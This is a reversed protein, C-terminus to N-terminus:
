SEEWLCDVVHRIARAREQSDQWFEDGGANPTFGALMYRAISSAQVASRTRIRRQMLSDVTSENAWFVWRGDEGVDMAVACHELAESDIVGKVYDDNTVEHPMLVVRLPFLPEKNLTDFCTNWGSRHSIFTKSHQFLSAVFTIYLPILADIAADDFKEVHLTLCEEVWVDNFSQTTSTRTAHPFADLGRWTHLAHELRWAAYGGAFAVRHLGLISLTRIVDTMFRRLALECLLARLRQARPMVRLYPRHLDTWVAECRRRLRASTRSLVDFTRVADAPREHLACLSELTVLSEVVDDM